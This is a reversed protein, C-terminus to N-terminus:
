FAASGKIMRPHESRNTHVSHERLGPLLLPVSCRSIISLHSRHYEFVTVGRVRGDAGPCVQLTLDKRGIQRKLNEEMSSPPPGPDTHAHAPGVSPSSHAASAQALPSTDFGEYVPSLRLVWMESERPPLMRSHSARLVPPTRSVQPHQM